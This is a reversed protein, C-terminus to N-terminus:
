INRKVKEVGIFKAFSCNRHMLMQLFIDYRAKNGASTTNVEM